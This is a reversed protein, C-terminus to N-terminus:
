CRAEVPRGLLSSLDVFLSMGWYLVAGDSEIYRTVFLSKGWHLVAGDSRGVVRRSKALPM